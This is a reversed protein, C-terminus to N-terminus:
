SGHIMTLKGDKKLENIIIFSGKNSLIGDFYETTGSNWILKVSM